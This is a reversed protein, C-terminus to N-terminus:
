PAGGITRAGGPPLAPILHVIGGAEPVDVQYRRGQVELVHPGPPPDAAVLWLTDPLELWARTDAEPNSLAGAVFTAIGAVYLITGVVGGDDQSQLARAVDGAQLLAIGLFPSADKFVAKGRLFGDVWRSGRTSAQFTVSDLYRPALAEGDLRVEPRGPQGRPVIRLIEGYRGDARKAPGRGDEVLLVLSPEDTVVAALAAATEALSEEPTGPHAAVAERWARALPELVELSRRADGKRLASLDEPRDGRKGDLVLMRLDTARSLAGDVAELPDRPHARVGAPLGSLLLVRAAAVADPDGDAQADALRDALHQTLTRIHVADIAQEMSRLANADEGLADYALAQLVFAPVFDSRYQFRSTGTDALVASKSMALANGADGDQVLLWGLYLFAMMKEHPDGKWEKRDESAILARLEGDAQFDQMRVVAQRLAHEALEADGEALAYSALRVAHLTQEPGPEAANTKAQQLASPEPAPAEPPPRPGCAVMAMPLLTRM